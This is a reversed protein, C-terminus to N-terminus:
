CSGPVSRIPGRRPHAASYIRALLPGHVANTVMVKETQLLLDEKFAREEAGLRAMLAERAVGPLLGCERPPTLWRGEHLIFVNSIGGETVFGQTNRFVADWYGLQRASRWGADQLPRHTTKHYLFLDNPDTAQGALCIKVPEEPRNIGQSTVRINGAANLLLRVKFAGRGLQSAHSNLASVVEARDWPFGFYAASRSLRSLHAELFPFGSEFRLSELLCFSPPPSTLYRSKLLVEEWEEKPVSDAVIGSGIGLVGAYEGRPELRNKGDVRCLHLTRIGVNFAAQDRAMWGVAGCYVGRPGSELDRILKMAAIKPAGTVSGSPFLARILDPLPTDEPISASVTSIMQLLTPYSKVEFLRSVAVSGCRAIKGLDNRMLDVIMLNEARNKADEALKRMREQDETLTRGRSLTGKMPQVTLRDGQRHFFLEPSLSLVWEERNRILFSNAVPQAQRLRCYLDRPDGSFRFFMRVTFNVQYVDGNRIKELISTVARGYREKGIDIRFDWLRLPPEHGPSFISGLAPSPVAEVPIPARYVGLEMLPGGAPCPSLAPELAYGLEYALWGAAIAERGAKGLLQLGEEISRSDTISLWSVPKTLLFSSVPFACAAAQDVLMGREESGLQQLASTLSVPSSSGRM